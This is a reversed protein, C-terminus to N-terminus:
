GARVDLQFAFSEAEKIQAAGIAREDVVLAHTIRHRKLHFSPASRVLRTRTELTDRQIFAM